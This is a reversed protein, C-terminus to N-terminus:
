AREKLCSSYLFRLALLALVIRWSGLIVIFRNFLVYQISDSRMSVDNLQSHHLGFTRPRNEIMDVLFSDIGEGYRCLTM